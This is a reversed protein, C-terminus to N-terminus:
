RIAPTIWHMVIMPIGNPIWLKLSAPKASQGKPLDTTWRGPADVDSLKTPLMMQITSDPM